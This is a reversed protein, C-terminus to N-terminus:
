RSYRALFLAVAEDIREEIGQATIPPDPTRLLSILPESGLVAGIFLTAALATDKGQFEGRRKAAELHETLRRLTRQPGSTYLALGLEPNRVTETTVIRLLAIVEPESMARLLNRGLESLVDALGAGSDFNADLAHRLGQTRSLVIEILLDDKSHFHRYLTEKSAGAEEAVRQMTTEAFGYHLLIREAV